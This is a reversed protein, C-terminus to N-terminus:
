PELRKLVLCANQGGFGFSNKLVIRVDAKRAVNPVYDLDCEPDPTEYNITPHIIGEEITKVCAILEVAGSGGLAHGALSKTSSIPVSYAAEGFVAKIALTESADNLPTSTGHANIYDVEGIEVGAHQLALQMARSAGEGDACPAVIHYADASAGYGAVECLIRAGRRMAHELSEIAFVAAGEAPVFGDRNADFPRSARAPADNSRTSLARLASFGALGLESIGAECGGTMMVEAEGRRIVEFAEGVAQTSAACATTVTSNYGKLGFQLSVQAAAMNPLIKPIFLPDLKGPGKEVLSRMGADIEGFGGNGNGLLVGIAFRDESELKLEADDLAMRAAAVAMQSFRAMRRAERRDIYHEPDFGRVEGAIRCAYGSPDTLTMPGIGSRGNVCNDWFEPITEGLCTVGGMGTVVVRRGDGNRM